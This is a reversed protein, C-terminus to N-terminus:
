KNRKLQDETARAIKLRDNIRNLQESINQGIDSLENLRNLTEETEGGVLKLNELKLSNAEVEKNVAEIRQNLKRRDSSLAKTIAKIQELSLTEIKGTIFPDRSKETNVNEVSDEGHEADDGLITQWFLNWETKLGGVFTEKTDKAAPPKGAEKPKSM